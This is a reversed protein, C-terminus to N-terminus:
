HKGKKRKEKPNGVTKYPHIISEYAANEKNSASKKPALLGGTGKATRVYMTKCVSKTICYGGRRKTWILERELVIRHSGLSLEKEM